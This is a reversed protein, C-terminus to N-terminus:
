EPYLESWFAFFALVAGVYGLPICSVWFGLRLLVKKRRADAILVCSLFVIPYLLISICDIFSGKQAITFDFWSSFSSGVFMLLPHFVAAYLVLPVTGLLLM